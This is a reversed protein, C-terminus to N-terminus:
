EDEDDPEPRRDLPCTDDLRVRTAAPARAGPQAQGSVFRERANVPTSVEAVPIDAQPPRFPVAADDARRIPPKGAVPITGVLPEMQLRGEKALKRRLLYYRSRSGGASGLVEAFRQVRDKSTPHATDVELDAVLAEAPDAAYADLFLKGWDRGAVKDNHAHVYARLDLPRLRALRQGVFDHIQQDWFWRAAHRHLELNDADFVLQLARSELVPSRTWVNAVICLPSTTSFSTPTGRLWRPNSTHWHLVKPVSTDGLASVLKFGLPDALLHEIDDLIIPQDVHAFAELHLAL